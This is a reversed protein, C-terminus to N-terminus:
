ALDYSQLAVVEKNESFGGYDQSFEKRSIHQIENLCLSQPPTPPPPSGTLLDVM